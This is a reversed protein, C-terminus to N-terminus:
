DRARKRGANEPDRIGIMLRLASAKGPDSFLTYLCEMDISVDRSGKMWSLASYVDVGGILKMANQVDANWGTSDGEAVVPFGRIFETIRFTPQKVAYSSFMSLMRFFLPVARFELSMPKRTCRLSALGEKNGRWFELTLTAAPSVIGTWALLNATAFGEAHDDVVDVRLEVVGSKTGYSISSTWNGYFLRAGDGRVFTAATPVRVYTWGLINAAYQMAFGTLRSKHLLPMYNSRMGVAVDGEMLIDASKRIKEKGIKQEQFSMPLAPIIWSAGGKPSERRTPPESGDNNAIAFGRHIETAIREFQKLVGDEATPIVLGESIIKMASFAMRLKMRGDANESMAIFEEMADNNKSFAEEAKSLATSDGLINWLLSSWGGPTPNKYIEELASGRKSKREARISFKDVDPTLSPFQRNAEWTEEYGKDLHKAYWPWFSVIELAHKAFESSDLAGAPRFENKPLRANTWYGLLIEQIRVFSWNVRDVFNRFSFERVEMEASEKTMEAILARRREASLGALIQRAQERVQNELQEEMRVAGCFSFLFFYCAAPGGLGLQTGGRSIGFCGTFTM